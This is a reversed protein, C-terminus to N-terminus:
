PTEYPTRRHHLIQHGFLAMEAPQV